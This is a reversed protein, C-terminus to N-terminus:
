ARDSAKLQQLMEFFDMKEGPHGAESFAAAIMTKNTPQYVQESQGGLVISKFYQSRVNNSGHLGKFRIFRNSPNSTTIVLSQLPLKELPRLNHATFVLQGKMRPDMVELLEGLLYEFVGSDLEDIFVSANANNYAAILAGLISVVKQIGTSECRLPVKVGDRNSLLEFEVGVDGSDLVRDGLKYAEVKLGPILQKLVINSVSLASCLSEYQGCGVIIPKDLNIAFGKTGDLAQGSSLLMLGLPIAAEHKQNIVVFDNEAFGRLAGIIDRLPLLTENTADKITNPATGDDIKQKAVTLFGAVSRSFEPSFIFSGGGNFSAVEAASFVAAANKSSARISKWRDVPKSTAFAVSADENSDQGAVSHVILNRKSSGGRTFSLAEEIVRVSFERMALEVRYTVAASEGCVSASESLDFSYSLILHEQGKTLLDKAGSPLPNGTMLAKMCEASDIISTKGSGNQGYIGLMSGGGISEPFDILGYRTNKINEVVLRKLRIM